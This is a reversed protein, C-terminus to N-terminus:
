SSRRATLRRRTWLVVPLSLLAIWALLAVFLGLRLAVWATAVAPALAIASITRLWPHALIVRALRPGHIYYLDVLKRGWASTLLIRDRFARLTVVAPAMPTGYTATAVFCFGGEEQGGNGKYYEWFDDVTVPTDSLVESLESENDFEDVSAVAVYYLGGVDLGTIQYDKLSIDAKSDAQSLDDASLPDNDWYIKYTVDESNVDDTWSAKLNGEGSELVLDTPPAPADFDYEFTVVEVSTTYTDDGYQFFFYISTEGEAGEDCGEPLLDWLNISLENNTYTTLSRKSVLYQCSDTEEDTLEGSESCSGIKIAYDYGSIATVSWKLLIRPTVITDAKEPLRFSRLDSETTVDDTSPVDTEVVEQSVVDEVSTIEETVEVVAEEVVEVLAPDSEGLYLRCDALNIRLEDVLRDDLQGDLTGVGEIRNVEFGQVEATADFGVSLCALAVLSVLSSRYQM